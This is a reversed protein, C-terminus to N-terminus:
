PLAAMAAGQRASPSTMPSRLVWNEGNWEVTENLFVEFRGGFALGEGGFLVLKDGLPALGAFARAYPTTSPSRRSWNEGDWEWTESSYAIARGGFLLLKGSAPAMMPGQAGTSFTSTTRPTWDQGDWEWTTPSWSSGAVGGFLVLKGGMPAMAAYARALPVNAPFRQTWTQGDWEWTENFVVTSSRSRQTGGFLVVKNGFRAMASGVRPSPARTVTRPTWDQGDWEWTDNLEGTRNAGGFMVVKGGLSAVGARTREPPVTGPTRKTWSEGDWEWTDNFYTETGSAASSGGFLVIRPTLKDVCRRDECTQDAGCSQCTAGGAGCANAANGAQCSGRACCGGACSTADCVCTGAVCRLGDGCPGESCVASCGDSEGCAKGSCRPTCAGSGCVNPGGGGCTEGANCGGCAVIAGCRDRLTGCKGECVRNADDVCAPDVASFPGAEAGADSSTTADLVRDGGGNAGDRTADFDVGLLAGCGVLGTLSVSFLFHIGRARRRVRDIPTTAM